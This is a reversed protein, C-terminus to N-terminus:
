MFGNFPLGSGEFLSSATSGFRSSTLVEINIGVSTIATPNITSPINFAKMTFPIILYMMGAPMYLLASSVFKMSCILADDLKAQRTGGAARRPGLPPEGQFGSFHFPSHRLVLCFNKSTWSGKKLFTRPRRLGAHQRVRKARGQPNGGNGFMMEFRSLNCTSALPM